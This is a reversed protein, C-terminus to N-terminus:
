KQDLTERVIAGLDKLSFPKQIFQMNKELVGRHAIVNATYGSMFLAKMDPYLVQLQDALDRGNMEPMVVDTILLHIKDEHEGAIRMAEGPSDATLVQYGLKELMVQGLKRIAAEDEVLLVMEGRSTAMETVPKASIAEAEGVHRPLYIKFTTGKGPESYVNIVGKNQKVIGFVMALGLGTGQGVEKTTFFPEFLHGLTEKDMGCGDDSAELLVFDGPVFGPHDDCYAKDFTVMHTEITVKGVGAIADRANVCLNALIQEIQSPDIKVPWLHSEPMWALDIDEGILRRLMKLMGEVTENVDLVKPAITQKRAFALLQRTIAASRKAANLIEKLDYYLPESLKVKDMALETYGLIVSLMNNYDHAVGGALRGVSEMKQAQQLQAAVRLHETIDHKVAVYNIIRGAADRVPTITAEETFFTGDKRKNVMQGQFNQGGSITEWLHQYFAQDQKGSKLLRPNQGIAEQRTYGTVREFAPNVYQIVGAPDTILIMEGTQEIASILRHHEAEAQKRETIDRINCQIVKTHDVLYVNSVFEVEVTRDDATKLPLDDYRIYKNDQLNKFAEKTPAINKLQGLEWLYKGMCVEYSLGLLQSLFPNVDIVKGTDADLILIGDRASEFLRRYRKESDQRAEEIQKRSVLAWTVDSLFSVVEVDKDTYDVPKNGVGLIAVVKDNRIVPVVLERVVNAHGEPMGHKSKLSPYDNHVIPKKLRAADAWVGAEDIPYHLGRGQAQCFETLTRSSWQQLSLTKQDAEVFHFFGIPSDVLNGIEDLAKTMLADLSHTAGYEVLALRAQTMRQSLRRETQDRFVLVVGVIKDTEDRIPAGSDAIPRRTGDKAILMTHNALGVVTNQRLVKAVPDEVASGTEENVICFVADLRKGRADAETWGTLTEAVPNLLEVVGHADTAIIADGISKLTIRYRELSARLAAESFYLARFHAKKERQWLTLGATGIIAALGLLLALLLASRFNWAAFVEKSDQKVVLFWPSDPIPLIASVVEVGRYDKGDVIGKRGLVAMVAPMDTQNLSIRLNLAANPQHRLNNLFMVDNGDRRVLMAEATKSPTPWSQILPYLTQSADSVLFFAGLPKQSQKDGAFLPVVVCTHPMLDNKEKSLDIFVPKRERLSAALASACGSHPEIDGRLNLLTKGNPNMLLIDAYDQQRALIRLHNDLDKSHESSPRGVFREVSQLLPMSEQLTAADDLQNKRWDAIRDAKLQAIASLDAEVQRRMAHQQSRYFVLGGAIVALLALALVVKIWRPFIMTDPEMM